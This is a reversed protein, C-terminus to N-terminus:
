ARYGVHRGVAVTEWLPQVGAAAQGAKGAVVMARGAGGYLESHTCSSFPLIVVRLVLFSLMLCEPEAPMVQM